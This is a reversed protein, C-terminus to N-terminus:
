SIKEGPGLAIKPLIRGSGSTLQGKLYKKMGYDSCDVEIKILMVIIALFLPVHIFYGTGYGAVPGLLWLLILTVAITWLM